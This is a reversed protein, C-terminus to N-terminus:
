TWSQERGAETKKAIREMPVATKDCRLIGLPEMRGAFGRVSAGITAFPRERGNPIFNRRRLM